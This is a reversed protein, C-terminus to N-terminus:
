TNTSAATKHSIIKGPVTIRMGVALESISGMLKGMIEMSKGMKEPDFNEMDQPSTSSVAEEETTPEIGFWLATLGVLFLGILLTKFWSAAIFRM